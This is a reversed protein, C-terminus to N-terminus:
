LLANYCKPLTVNSNLQDNMLNNKAIKQRNIEWQELFKRASHNNEVYSIKPSYFNIQHDFELADDAVNSKVCSSTLARKHEKIRCSLKRKTTGVYCADCDNCFINYVVKDKDLISKPESNFLNKINFGRRFVVNIDHKSLINRISESLNKFYPICILKEINFESQDQSNLNQLSKQHCENIINVILNLPYNNELFINKLLGLENELALPDSCHSFARNVLTRNVSKKNQLSHHSRFNLYRNSHSQKRYVTTKIGM